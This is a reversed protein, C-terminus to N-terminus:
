PIRPEPSRPTPSNPEVYIEYVEREHWGTLPQGRSAATYGSNTPQGPRWLEFTFEFGYRCLGTTPPPWAIGCTTQNTTGQPPLRSPATGCSPGPVPEGRTDSVLFGFTYRYGIQQTPWRIGRTTIVAQMPLPVGCRTRQTAFEFFIAVSRRLQRLYFAPPLQGTAAVQSLWTDAMPSIEGEHEYIALLRMALRDRQSPPLNRRMLERWSPTRAAGPSRLVDAILVRDPMSAILAARLNSRQAVLLAAVIGVVLSWSLVTLPSVARRGRVVTGTPGWLHGCEPCRPSHPGVPSRQYGCNACRPMADTRWRRRQVAAPLATLLLLPGFLYPGTIALSVLPHGPATFAAALWAITVASAAHGPRYPAPRLRTALASLGRRRSRPQLAFKAARPGREARVRWYARVAAARWDRDCRCCFRDQDVAELAIGCHPCPLSGQLLAARARSRTRWAGALAYGCLAVLVLAAPRLAAAVRHPFGGTIASAILAAALLSAWAVAHRQLARDLVTHPTQTLPSRSAKHRSINSRTNMAANANPQSGRRVSRNPGHKNHRVASWLILQRRPHDSADPM